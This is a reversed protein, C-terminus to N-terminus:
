HIIAPCKGGLELICRTLNKAAVGAVIKGVQTSGTFCILDVKQKNLEVAVDIGGEICRIFDQDLYTDIFKKVVKSTQPAIESPKMIVANGTTICQVLPKLSTMVPYNWASYIAVVGMPEYRVYTSAPALMLETEEIVDRMYSKLHKLDHAAAAEVMKIEAVSANKNRGLDQLLAEEFEPRM